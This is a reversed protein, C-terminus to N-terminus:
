AHLLATGSRRASLPYRSVVQLAQTSCASLHRVKSSPLISCTDTLAHHNLPSIALYSNKITVLIISHASNMNTDMSSTLNIAITVFLSAVSQSYIPQQMNQYLPVSLIKKEHVCRFGSINHWFILFFRDIQVMQPLNHPIRRYTIYIIFDSSRSFIVLRTCTIINGIDIQPLRIIIFDNMSKFNIEM